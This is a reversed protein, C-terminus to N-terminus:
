RRFIRLEIAAPQHQLVEAAMSLKEAATYEGEAHIIKARRAREAEAQRTLVFALNPDTMRSPLNERLTKQYDAISAGAVRLVERAGDFRIIERGDLQALLEQENRAVLDILRNDLRRTPSLGARSFRKKPWPRM